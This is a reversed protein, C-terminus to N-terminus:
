HCESLCTTTCPGNASECVIVCVTTKVCPPPQDALVGKRDRATAASAGAASARLFFHDPYAALDVGDTGARALWEDMALEFGDAFRLTVRSFDIPAASFDFDYAVDPEDVDVVLNQGAPLTGIRQADIKEVRAPTDVSTTEVSGTGPAGSCALLAGTSVAFLLSCAFVRLSPNM